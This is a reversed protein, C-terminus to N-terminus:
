HRRPNNLPKGKVVESFSGGRARDESARARGENRASYTLINLMQRRNDSKGVKPPRVIGWRQGSPKAMAASTRGIVSFARLQARSVFVSPKVISASQLFNGKRTESNATEASHHPVKRRAGRIPPLPSRTRCLFDETMRRLLNVSSKLPTGTGIFFASM